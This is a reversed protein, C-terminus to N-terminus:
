WVGDTLVIPVTDDRGAFSDGEDWDKVQNGCLATVPPVPIDNFSNKSSDFGHPVCPSCDRGSVNKGICKGAAAAAPCLGKNRRKEVSCKMSLSYAARNWGPGASCYFTGM